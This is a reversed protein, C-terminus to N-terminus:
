MDTTTCEKSLNLIPRAGLIVYSGCAWSVGWPGPTAGSHNRAVNRRERGCHPCVETPIMLAPVGPIPEHRGVVINHTAM